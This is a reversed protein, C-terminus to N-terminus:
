RRGTFKNNPLVSFGSLLKRHFCWLESKRATNRDHIFKGDTWRTRNDGIERFTRISCDINRGYESNSRISSYLTRLTIRAQSSYWIHRYSVRRGKNPIRTENSWAYIKGGFCQHFIVVQTICKFITDGGVEWRFGFLRFTLKQRYTLMRCFWNLIIM